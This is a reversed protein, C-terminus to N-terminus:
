GIELEFLTDNAGHDDRRPRRGRDHVKTPDEAGVLRSVSPLNNRAVRVGAFAPESRRVRHKTPEAGCQM